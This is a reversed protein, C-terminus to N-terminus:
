ECDSTLECSQWVVQYNETSFGVCKGNKLEMPPNCPAEIVPISDSNTPACFAFLVLTIVLLSLLVFKMTIMKIWANRLNQQSFHISWHQAGSLSLCAVRLSISILALWAAIASWSCVFMKPTNIWTNRRKHIPEWMTDAMILHSGAEADTEASVVINCLGIKWWYWVIWSYVWRHLKKKHLFVNFQCVVSFEISAWILKLTCGNSTQIACATSFLKPHSFDADHIMRGLQFKTIIVRQTLSQYNTKKELVLSFSLKMRINLHNVSGLNVSNRGLKGTEM